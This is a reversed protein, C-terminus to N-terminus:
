RAGPYVRYIKKSRKDTLAKFIIKAAADPSMRKDKSKNQENIMKDLQESYFEAKDPQLLGFHEKLEKVAKIKASTKVGRCKIKIVPIKWPALEDNLTDVLCNLVADCMYLSSVFPSTKKSDTLIWVIRGNNEKIMPLFTQILGIPGLVRTEIEERLRQLNMLEVPSLYAGGANNIVAFLGEPGLKNLKESIFDHAMAIHDQNRLDFPFVPILNPNNYSILMDADSKKRVAAFVNFGNDAFLLACSLGIGSSTGTILISKRPFAAKLSNDRKM